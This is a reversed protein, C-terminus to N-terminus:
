QSLAKPAKFQHQIMRYYVGEKKMLENHNGTEKIEGNEILMITDAHRITNLRHAIIFSTKGQLIARLAQQLYLETRTDTNSTAEDLILLSPDSLLVRSIALLQKQGQSLNDGNESLRTEVTAWYFNVLPFKKINIM